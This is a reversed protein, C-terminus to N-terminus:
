RIRGRITIMDAPAILNSAEHELFAARADDFRTFVAFTTPFPPFGDALCLSLGAELRMRCILLRRISYDCSEGTITCVPCSVTTYPTTAATTDKRSWRLTPGKRKSSIDMPHLRDASFGQAFARMPGGILGRDQAVLWVREADVRTRYVEWVSLSDTGIFQRLNDSDLFVGTSM